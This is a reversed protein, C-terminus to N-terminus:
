RGRPSCPAGMVQAIQGAIRQLAPVFTPTCLTEFRGNSGFANAWQAIRVAPDGYTQSNDPETLVCSHEVYPWM